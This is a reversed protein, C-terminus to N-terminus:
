QSFLQKAYFGYVATAAALDRLTSTKGAQSVCYAGISYALVGSCYSHEEATYCAAVYITEDLNKAAIGAVVAMYEGTELRTLSLRGTANSPTLTTAANYDAQTWYYLTITSDPVDNPLFYYNICFAGEFSITPYRGTFGGTNTFIGVKSSNAPVVSNMMDSNYAAALAQQAETMDANVPTETRYSFYSQAATGYNLMAAVLPRMEASGTKLQNYAYTKPSYGVLSTYVYSGDMLKAYVAFYITDGLCKAPIGDTTSYYFADAESWIYGPVVAEATEVSYDTVKQSFTILGMEAVSDLDSAAYYVNMVIVDEFTLTPYKLAITPRTVPGEYAESCVTCRGNEYRHGAAATASGIYSDGCSCLYTTYGEQTCTPATVVPEYLHGNPALTQSDTYGCVKCRVDQSGETTCGPEQTITAEYDHGKAPVETDTYSYGCVTCTHTTYGLLSCTPSTVASELRHGPAIIMEISSYGCLKCTNLISGDTTCTAETRETEYDHGVVVGCACCLGDADHIDHPCDVAAYSLTFTDDGNDELRFTVLKGGPVFLKEYAGTTTQYLVASTVATGLWRDVMYWDEGDHSKVAVYSDEKFVTTLTGDEFRYVGLTQYDGECGYNSGNIFGFLYLDNDPEVYACISCVGGTYSHVCEKGCVSCSGENWSHDGLPTGDAQTTLDVANQDIFVTFEGITLGLGLM